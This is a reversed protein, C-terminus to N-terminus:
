SRARTSRREATAGGLPFGTWPNPMTRDTVFTHGAGLSAARATVGALQDPACSHVLHWVRTRPVGTLGAPPRFAAYAAATGEFVCTVDLLALFGLKPVVGPNGVVFGAGARRAGSVYDVCQDTSDADAPFRDFM